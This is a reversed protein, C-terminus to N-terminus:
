RCNACYGGRQQYQVPQPYYYYYRQQVPQYQPTVQRVFQTKPAAQAPASYNAMIAVGKANSAGIWGKIPHKNEDLLIWAPCAYEMECLRWYNIARIADDEACLITVPLGSAKASRVAQPGYICERTYLLVLERGNPLVSESVEPVFEEKATAYAPPEWTDASAGYTPPEWVGIAAILIFTHMEPVKNLLYLWWPLV